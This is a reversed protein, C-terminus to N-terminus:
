EPKGTFCLDRPIISTCSTVNDGSDLAVFFLPPIDAATEIAIDVTIKRGDIFTVTAKHWSGGIVAVFVEQGRMLNKRMQVNKFWYRVSWRYCFWFAAFRKAAELLWGVVTYLGIWDLISM